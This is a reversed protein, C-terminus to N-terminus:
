RLRIRNSNCHFKLCQFLLIALFVDCQLPNFVPIALERLDDRVVLDHGNNVHLSFIQFTKRYLQSNAINPVVVTTREAVLILPTSGPNMVLNEILPGSDDTLHRQAWAASM